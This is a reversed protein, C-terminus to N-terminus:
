KEKFSVIVVGEVIQLKLYIDGIIAPYRYVDQWLTYNSHSTMSKYFDEAELNQVVSIMDDFSFKLAAAGELAAKTARVNGSIVLEKITPLPYHAIKKEM